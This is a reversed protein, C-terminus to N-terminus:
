HDAGLAQDESRAGRRRLARDPHTAIAPDWSGRKPRQDIDVAADPLASLVAYARMVRSMDVEAGFRILLDRRGSDAESLYGPAPKAGCWDSLSRRM